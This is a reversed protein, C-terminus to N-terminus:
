YDNNFNIVDTQAVTKSVNESLVRFSYKTLDIAEQENEIKQGNIIVYSSKYDVSKPKKEPASKESTSNQVYQPRAQRRIRGRKPLIQEVVDTADQISVSDSVLSDSVVKVSDKTTIIALDNNNGFNDKQKLIENKVLIDKETVSTNSSTKFLIGLSLLVAASAAMWFIKQLSPASKQPPLPLTKEPKEAAALFEEFDWNMKDEKIEDFIEKYKKDTDNTNM